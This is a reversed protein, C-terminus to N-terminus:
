ADDDDDDFRAFRGFGSGSAVEALRALAELVSLRPEREIEFETEVDGGSRWRENFLDWEANRRRQVGQFASATASAEGQESLTPVGLHMVGQADVVGMAEVATKNNAPDAACTHWTLDLGWGHTLDNQIMAWACRWARRSFVPVMIEVYAACPPRLRAVGSDDLCPEGRWDKGFRHM